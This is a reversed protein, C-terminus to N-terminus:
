RPTAPNLLVTVSGAEQNATVVEPWGDGTVDALAVGGPGAGVTLVLPSSRFGASGRGFLVTVSDGDANASILDAYGDGDVDGAAVDAPAAGVAYSRTARFTGRGNGRLVQVADDDGDVVAIDLKGDKDLDALALAKPQPGVAVAGSKELGGDGDNLLIEVQDRLVAVDLAGDGNVDGIALDRGWTGACSSGEDFTGDGNGRAVIIRHTDGDSIVLDAAGDGDMDGVGLGGPTVLEVSDMIQGFTGDGRGRHVVVPGLGDADRRLLAMDLKGDGDFDELLAGRASAESFPTPKSTFTGDGRSILATAAPRQEAQGTPFKHGVVLDVLGDGNLDGVAMPMASHPTRGPLQTDVRSVLCGAFVVAGIAALHHVKISM